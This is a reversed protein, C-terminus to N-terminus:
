HRTHDDRHEREKRLLSTFTYVIAVAAVVGAVILFAPHGALAFGVILLIVVAVSAFWFYFKM